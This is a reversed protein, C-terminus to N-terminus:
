ALKAYTYYSPVVKETNRANYKKIFAEAKRETPFELVEDIKQGWGAESEIILVKIKPKKSKKM